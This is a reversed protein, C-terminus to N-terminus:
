RKGWGRVLSYPELRGAGLQRGDERLCSGANAVFTIEPQEEVAPPPLSSRSSAANQRRCRPLCRRRVWLAWPSWRKSGSWDGWAHQGHRVHADDASAALQPRVIFLNVAAPVLALAILAGKVLLAQGYPTTSLAEPGSVHAWTHYLGTLILLEVAVLSMNSFRSVVRALM